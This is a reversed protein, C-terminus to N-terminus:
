KAILMRRTASFDDATLTYFYLGSTVPEGLANKGNWYAAQTRNVYNGARQHGLALSRVPQGNTAYITLTVDADKALRYPIWTEPNFPNPYNSLLVTKKPNLEALQTELLQM